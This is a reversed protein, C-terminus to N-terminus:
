KPTRYAWVEVRARGGGPLNRYTFDVFKVIRKDGPFDLVKSREREKFYHRLAPHWPAGQGFTVSLDLLELSSDEVYLGLKEWRGENVGVAVRRIEGYEAFAITRRARDANQETRTGARETGAGCERDPAVPVDVKSEGVEVTVPM